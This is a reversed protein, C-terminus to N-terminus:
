EWRFDLFRSIVTEVLTLSKMTKDQFLVMLKLYTEKQIKLKYNIIPTKHAKMSSFYYKTLTATSLEDLFFLNVKAEHFRSFYKM